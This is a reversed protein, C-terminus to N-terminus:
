AFQCGEAVPQGVEVFPRAQAFQDSSGCMFEVVVQHRDDIVGFNSNTVLIIRRAVFRKLFDMISSDFGGFDGFNNQSRGAISGVVQFWRVQLWDNILRYRNSSRSIRFYWILAPFM